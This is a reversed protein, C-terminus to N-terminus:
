VTEDQKEKTIYSKATMVLAKYNQWNRYTMYVGATFLMRRPWRGMPSKSKVAFFILFAPLVYTDFARPKVAAMDQEFKELSYDQGIEM